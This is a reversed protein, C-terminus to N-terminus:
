ERGFGRLLRTDDLNCRFEGTTTIVVVQVDAREAIALVDASTFVAVAGQPQVSPGFLARLSAGAKVAIAQVAQQGADDDRPRIVVHEIGGGALWQAMRWDGDAGPVVHVTFLDDALIELWLPDDAAPVPRYNSEAEAAAYAAARALPPQGTIWIDVSSVNVAAEFLRRGFGGARATCSNQIRDLDGNVGVAIARAIVEADYAPEVPVHPLLEFIMNIDDSGASWHFTGSGPEMTGGDVNFAAVVSLTQNSGQLPVNCGINVQAGRGRTSANESLFDPTVAASGECTLTTSKLGAFGKEVGSITMAGFFNGQELFRSPTFVIGADTPMSVDGFTTGVFRGSLVFKGALLREGLDRLARARNEKAEQIEQAEQVPSRNSPSWASREYVRCRSEVSNINANSIEITLARNQNQSETAWLFNDDGILAQCYGKWQADWETSYDPQVVELTLVRKATFDDSEDSTVKTAVTTGNPVHDRVFLARTLRVLDEFDGIALRVADLQQVQELGSARNAAENSTQLEQAVEVVDSVDMMKSPVCRVRTLAVQPFQQGVVLEDSQIDVPLSVLATGDPLYEGETALWGIGSHTIPLTPNDYLCLGGKRLQNAQAVLASGDMAAVLGQGFQAFSTLLDTQTARDILYDSLPVKVLVTTRMQPLLRTDAGSDTRRYGDLRFPLESLAPASATTPIAPEPPRTQASQAFSGPVVGLLLSACTVVLRNSHICM